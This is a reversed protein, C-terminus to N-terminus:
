LSGRVCFSNGAGTFEAMGESRLRYMAEEDDAFSFLKGAKMVTNLIDPLQRVSESNEPVYLCIARPM